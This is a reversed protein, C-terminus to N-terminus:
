KEAETDTHAGLSGAQMPSGKAAANLLLKCGKPTHMSGGSM